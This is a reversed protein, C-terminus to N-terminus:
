SSDASSSSLRAVLALMEEENPQRAVHIVPPALSRLRDAVAPSLCLHALRRAAAELGAEEVREVWTGATRPSMLLVADLDGHRLAADIEAPLTTAPVSRYVIARRIEFGAPALARELDFAITDGSVHLLCGARPDLVAAIRDALEAGGADGEWAVNFGYDRAATGTGKGVSIVPIELLATRDPRGALARVSNRSTLVIAQVDRVDLPPLDYAIGLMPALSVRHGMTELKRKTKLAETEPRTVLLHM